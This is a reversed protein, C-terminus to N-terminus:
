IGRLGYIILVYINQLYQTGQIVEVIQYIMFFDKKYVGDASHYTDFSLSSLGSLNVVKNLSDSRITDYKVTNVLKSDVNDSIVTGIPTNFNYIDGTYILDTVAFRYPCQVEQANLWIKNGGQFTSGTIPNIIDISISKGTQGGALTTGVDLKSNFITTSTIADDVKQNFSTGGLTINGTIILNDNILVNNNFRSYITNLSATGDVELDKPFIKGDDPLNRKSLVQAYM